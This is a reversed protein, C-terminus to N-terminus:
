IFSDSFVIRGRLITTIIGNESPDDMWGFRSLILYEWNRVWRILGPQM